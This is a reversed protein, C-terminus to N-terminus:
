SLCSEKNQTLSRKDTILHAAASLVPPSLTLPNARYCGDPYSFWSPDDNLKSALYLSETLLSAGGSRRVAERYSM